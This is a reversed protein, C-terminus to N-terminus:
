TRNSKYSAFSVNKFGPSFMSPVLTSISVQPRDKIEVDQLRPNRWPFVAGMLTRLAVDALSKVAQPDISSSNWKIHALQLSRDDSEVSLNTSVTSLTSTQSAFLPTGTQSTQSFLPEDAELGDMIQGVDHDLLMEDDDYGAESEADGHRTDLLMEDPKQAPAKNIYNTKAKQRYWQLQNKLQGLFM